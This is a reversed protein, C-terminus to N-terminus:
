STGPGQVYLMQGETEKHQFTNHDIEHDDGGVTLYAGKKGQDIRLQFLNQTVRCHHVGPPLNMTGAAHSFKFGRLVVFAAPPEFSFGGEGQIETAGVSQAEIVIPNPATGACNIRITGTSIHLGRALVICDGPSAKSIAEELSPLSSVNVVTASLSQWGSALVLLFISANRTLRRMMFKRCEFCNSVTM